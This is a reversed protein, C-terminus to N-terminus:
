GNRQDCWIFAKGGAGEAIGHNTTQFFHVKNSTGAIKAAADKAIFGNSQTVGCGSFAM